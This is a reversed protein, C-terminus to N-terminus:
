NEEGQGFTNELAGESILKKASTYGLRDTLDGDRKDEFVHVGDVSTIMGKFHFQDGSQTAFGGIPNTCDGGVTRLFDREITVCDNTEQDNIAAIIEQTDTDERRCEIAMAGQGVAPLMVDALSLRYLDGLDLKLRNLGAEAIVIADIDDDHVRNVRTEVNGRLTVPKLDPRLHLLQGMRRSSGTGVRAGQPLDDLSKMPTSTILCDYPSERPPICGIMLQEPLRPMVDKLSHVAFDIDGNLLEYELEKVFVGKGGIKELSSTRDVDGQTTVEKISFNIETWRDSLADKVMNSQIMALRSKRSGIIVNSKM